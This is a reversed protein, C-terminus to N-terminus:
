SKILIETTKLGLLLAKLVMESAYEWSTSQLDIWKLADLTM